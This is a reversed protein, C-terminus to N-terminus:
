IRDLQNLLKDTVNLSKTIFQDIKSHVNELEAIWDYNFVSDDVADISINPMDQAIDLPKVAQMGCTVLLANAKSFLDCHELFLVEAQTNLDILEKLKDRRMKEILPRGLKKAIRTVIGDVSYSDFDMMGLDVSGSALVGSSKMSIASMQGYFKNLINQLERVADAPYEVTNM